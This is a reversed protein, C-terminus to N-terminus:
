LEAVKHLNNAQWGFRQEGFYNSLGASLEGLRQTVTQQDVLFDRLVLAFKNGKHM